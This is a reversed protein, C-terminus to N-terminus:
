ICSSMPRHVPLLVEFGPQLAVQCLFGIARLVPEAWITRDSADYSFSARAAVLDDSVSTGTLMLPAAAVPLTM